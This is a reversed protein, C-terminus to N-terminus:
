IWIIHNALALAVAQTRTKANMKKYISRFHADITHASVGLEYSIEADRKGQAALRLVQTERPSLSAPLGAEKEENLAVAKRDAELKKLRIYCTYYHRGLATLMDRDITFDGEKVSRALGIGAFADHRWLPIYHGHYLHHDEVQKMMQQQRLSLEMEKEVEDWSFAESQLRSFHQVPDIQYLNNKHYYDMWDNSLNHVVGMQAEVGIEKHDSQFCLIMRDFGFQSIKEIFLSNLEDVTEASNLDRTFLKM